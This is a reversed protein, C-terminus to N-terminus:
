EVVIFINIKFSTNHIFMGNVAAVYCGKRMRALLINPNPVLLYNELIPILERYDVM